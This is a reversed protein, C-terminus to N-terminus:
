LKVLLCVVSVGGELGMRQLMGAEQDVAHLLQVLEAQAADEAADPLLSGPLLLEQEQQAHQQAAQGAGSDEPVSESHEAESDAAGQAGGTSLQLSASREAPASLQPLSRSPQRGALMAAADNM